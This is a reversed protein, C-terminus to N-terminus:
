SERSAARTCILRYVRLEYLSTLEIDGLPMAVCTYVYLALRPEVFGRGSSQDRSPPFFFSVSRATFAIKCLTPLLRAKKWWVDLPSIGTFTRTYLGRRCRRYKWNRNGRRRQYGESRWLQENITITATTARKKPPPHYSYYSAEISRHTFHIITM